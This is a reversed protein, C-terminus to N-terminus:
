HTLDSVLSDFQISFLHDLFNFFCLCHIIFQRIKINQMEPVLPNYVQSERM